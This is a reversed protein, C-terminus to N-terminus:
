DTNPIWVVNPNNTRGKNNTFEWYDTNRFRASHGDLFTFQAGRNHLNTHVNNQQAVAARKGNDFLWVVAAPKRISSHRVPANNAGTGNVHENLCYHFLNIGNSRNTNVPCIWISKRPAIGANTRWPLEHYPEIGLIRPLDVYWGSNVSMGNPSGDPPLFDNNEAAYLQTALGWQKLNNTCTTRAAAARVKQVAPLLLGILIGIIAIVVLLEILTFGRRAGLRGHRDM